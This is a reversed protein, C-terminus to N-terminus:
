NRPWHGKVRLAIEYKFKHEYKMRGAREALRIKNRAKCEESANKAEWSSDYVRGWNRGSVM